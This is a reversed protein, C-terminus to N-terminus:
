NSGMQQIQKVGSSVADAGKTLLHATLSLRSMAIQSQLLPKLQESIDAPVKSVSNHLEKWDNSLSMM